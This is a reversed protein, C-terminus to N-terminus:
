RGARRSAPSAAEANTIGQQPPHRIAGTIEFGAAFARQLAFAVHIMGSLLPNACGTSSPIRGSPSTVGDECPKKRSKQTKNKQIMNMNGMKQNVGIKGLDYHVGYAHAAAVQLQVLAGKTEPVRGTTGRSLGGALQTLAEQPWTSHETALM